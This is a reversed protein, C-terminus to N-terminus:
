FNRGRDNLAKQVVSYILEQNEFLQRRFDQPTNPSMNLSLNINNNSTSVSRNLDKNSTVIGSQPTMLYNKNGMTLMEPKGDELIPHMKGAQTSGGYLLGGGMQAAAMSGVLSATATPFTAAAALAAGGFSAVNAALAAPAYAATMASGTAVATAVSATQAATEASKETMKGLVFAAAKGVYYRIIASLLETVITRAVNKLSESLDEGM